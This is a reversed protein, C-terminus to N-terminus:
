CVWSIVVCSQFGDMPSSHCGFFVGMCYGDHDDVVFIPCWLLEWDGFMGVDVRYHGDRWVSYAVVGCWFPWFIILIYFWGECGYYAYM